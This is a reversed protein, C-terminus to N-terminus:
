WPPRLRRCGAEREGRVTDGAMEGAGRESQTEQWRESERQQPCVPRQVRTLCLCSPAAPTLVTASTVAVSVTPEAEAIAIPVFIIPNGDDLHLPPSPWTTSWNPLPPMSWSTYNVSWTWRQGALTIPITIAGSETTRNVTVPGYTVAAKAPSLNRHSHQRSQPLLWWLIVQKLPHRWWCDRTFSFYCIMEHHRLSLLCNNGFM